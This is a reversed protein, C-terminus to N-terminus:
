KKEGRDLEVLAHNPAPIFMGDEFPVTIFKGQLRGWRNKHFQFTTRQTEFNPKIEICDQAHNYLTKDNEIRDKIDLNEDGKLQSFAVLPIPVRAAFEKMYFGLQKSVEVSSLSLNERSQNVTQWYDFLIMEFGDPDNQTEEAHAMTVMFDEMYQYQMTGSTISQVVIVKAIDKMRELVRNWDAEPITDARYDVWPVNEVMCAIRSYVDETSEENSIVLIRKKISNTIVLHALINALVTSKGKGSKGVILIFGMVMKYYQDFTSCIFPYNKKMASRRRHIDSFMNTCLDDYSSESYRVSPQPNNQAVSHIAAVNPMPAFGNNMQNIARTQYPNPTSKRNEFIDKITSLDYEDLYGLHSSTAQTLLAIAQDMPMQLGSMDYCAAALERHWSGTKAGFSLFSMTSKALLRKYQESDIGNVPVIAVPEVKPVEAIISFKKGESKMYVVEISKAYYRAADKCSEDIFPWLKYAEGWIARLLESDGVTAELPIIVRYRDCAAKIKGSLTTKIKQHSKTTAIIFQYESFITKAEEITMGDDIDLSLTSCSEFNSNVRHRHGNEDAKFLSPSWNLNTIVSSINNIDVSFIQEVYAMEQPKFGKFTSIEM